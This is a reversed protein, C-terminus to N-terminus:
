FYIIDDSNHALKGKFAGVSVAINQPNANSDASSNM